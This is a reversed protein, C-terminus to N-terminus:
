QTKSYVVAEGRQLREQARKVVDTELFFAYGRVRGLVQSRGTRLDGLVWRDWLPFDRSDLLLATETFLSVDIVGFPAGIRLNNMTRPRAIRIEKLFRLADDDIRLVHCLLEPTEGTEQRYKNDFGFYYLLTDRRFLGDGRFPAHYVIKSPERILAIGSENRGVDVFFFVCGKERMGRAFPARSLREGTATVLGDGSWQWRLFEEVRCRPDLFASSGEHITVPETASLVVTIERGDESVSLIVANGKENRGVGTIRFGMLGLQALVSRMTAEPYVYLHPVTGNGLVVQHGRFRPGCGVLLLVFLAVKGLSRRRNVKGDVPREWAGM